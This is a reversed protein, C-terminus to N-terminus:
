CLMIVIFSSCRLQINLYGCGLVHHRHLSWIIPNQLYILCRIYDLCPNIRKRSICWNLLWFTPNWITLKHNLFACHFYEMCFFRQSWWQKLIMKLFEKRSLPTCIWRILRCFEDADTSNHITVFRHNSEMFYKVIWLTCIWM